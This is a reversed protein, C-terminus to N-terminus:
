CSRPPCVSCAIDNHCPCPLDGMHCSSLNKLPSVQQELQRDSNSRKLLSERARRAETRGDGGDQLAEDDESMASADPERGSAGSDVVDADGAEGTVAPGADAAAGASAAELAGSVAAEAAAGPEADPTEPDTTEPDLSLTHPLGEGADAEAAESGGAAAAADLADPAATVAAQEFAGDSSAPSRAQREAFDAEELAPADQKHEVGGASGLADTASSSHEAAAEAAVEAGVQQKVSAFVQVTDGAAAGGAAHPSEDPVLAASSQTDDAAHKSREYGAGEPERGNAALSALTEVGQAGVGDAVLAVENATDPLGEVTVAAAPAADALAGAKLAELRRRADARASKSAAAEAALAAKAAEREHPLFATLATHADEDHLARKRLDERAQCLLAARGCAPGTQM